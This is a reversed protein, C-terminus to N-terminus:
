EKLYSSNLDLQIYDHLSIQKEVPPLKRWDGFLNTLYENYNEVGCVITDEFVYETPKGFVRKEIIERSRYTSICNAVYKNETYGFSACIRDLKRALKNDDIIFDPVLRMMRIAINKYWKRRKNIACTRATLLMYLRDIKKYNRRAEEISNGLGDLAFVDIFLGRRLPRKLNEILLTDTDYLKAYGYIYDTGDSYPTEVIYKGNPKSLLNCFRDYDPRPIIIDIDDDWPIFGNGRVAGLMTGGIIYYPIENAKCFSHTWKLMDLLHAQIDNM